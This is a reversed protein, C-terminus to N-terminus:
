NNSIGWKTKSSGQDRPFVLIHGISIVELLSFSFWFRIKKKHDINRKRNNSKKGQEM